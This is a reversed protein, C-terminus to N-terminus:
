SPRVVVRLFKGDLASALASQFDTMGYVPSLLEDYPFKGGTAELFQVADQLNDPEYESNGIVSLGKALIAGAELTTGSGGGPPPQGLLLLCGGARLRAHPGATRPSGAGDVGFAMVVVDLRDPLTASPTLPGADKFVPNARFKAALRLRSVDGGECFVMFGSEALVACALIGVLGGGCDQVLATPPPAPRGGDDGRQGATGGEVRGPLLLLLRRVGAIAAALPCAALLARADPVAPPVACVATGGRLLVHSSLTGGLAWPPQGGYKTANECAVHAGQRCCDCEMCWNFASFVVRAGVDVGPRQSAVVDGVAEHGPILADTFDAAGGPAHVFRRADAHCLGALRVRILVESNGLEEFPVRCREVVFCPRRSPGVFLLCTAHTPLAPQRVM